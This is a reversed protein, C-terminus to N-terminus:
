DITRYLELAMDAEMTVIDIQGGMEIREIRINQEFVLVVSRSAM